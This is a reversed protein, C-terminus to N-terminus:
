LTLAYGFFFRVLMAQFQSRLETLKQRLAQQEASGSARGNRREDLTKKIEEVRQKNKNVAFCYM